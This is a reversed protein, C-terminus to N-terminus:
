RDHQDGDTECGIVDLDDDFQIVTGDFGSPFDAQGDHSSVGDVIMRQEDVHHGVHDASCPLSVGLIRYQGDGRAAAYSIARGGCGLKM